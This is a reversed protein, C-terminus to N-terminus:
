EEPLLFDHERNLLENNQKALGYLQDIATRIALRM